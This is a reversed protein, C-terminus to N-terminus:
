FGGHNVGCEVFDGELRSAREAAWCAVYARWAPEADLWSGTSRGLDYARAFREDRLFDCNHRTALGDQNYSLPGEVLELSVFEMVARRVELVWEPLYKKIRDKLDQDM